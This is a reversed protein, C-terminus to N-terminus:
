VGFPVAFDRRQLNDGALATMCQARESILLMRTAEDRVALQLGVRRSFNVLSDHTQKNEKNAARSLQPRPGRWTLLLEFRGLFEYGSAFNIERLGNSLASTYSVEQEAEGM